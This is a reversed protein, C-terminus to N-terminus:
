LIKALLPNYNNAKLVTHYTSWPPIQWKCIQGPINIRESSLLWDQIPIIKITANSNIIKNRIQIALNEASVNTPTNYIQTLQLFLDSHLDKLWPLLPPTDHNSTYIIIQNTYSNPDIFYHDLYNETQGQTFVKTIPIQNQSLFQHLEHSPFYTIDEAILQLDIDHSYQYLAQLFPKGSSTVIQDQTPDQTNIQGHHFFGISHDIRVIDFLYKTHQLRTQWLLQLNSTNSWNYLPMNWVQRPYSSDAPVGSTWQYNPHSPKIFLNQNAWVLPSRRDVYFPLDGIIQISNANAYKKIESWLLHASIQNDLHKTISQSNQTIFDTLTTLNYNRYNDPWQWWEDTQFKQQLTQFLALQNIWPFRYTYSHRVNPDIPSAPPQINLGIGYSSYPSAEHQPQTNIPLVQWYSQDTERLWDIFQKVQPLFNNPDQFTFLPLLTGVHRPQSM